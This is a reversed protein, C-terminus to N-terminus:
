LPTGAGVVTPTMTRYLPSSSLWIVTPETVAGFEPPENSPAMRAFMEGSACPKAFLM